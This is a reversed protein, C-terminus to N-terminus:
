RASREFRWRRAGMVSSRTTPTPTPVRPVGLVGPVGPTYTPVTARTQPELASAAEWSPFCGFMSTMWFLSITWNEFIGFIALVVEIEIIELPKVGVVVLFLADRVEPFLYYSSEEASDSLVWRM